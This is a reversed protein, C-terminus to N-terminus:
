FLSDNEILAFFDKHGTNAIDICLDRVSNIQHTLSPFKSWLSVPITIKKKKAFINIEESSLNNEAFINRVANYVPEISSM